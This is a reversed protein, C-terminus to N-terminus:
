HKVLKLPTTKGNLAVVLFYTGDAQDSLDLTREYRGKFGTVTEHYIRDGQANHVDVVLDGREAVNFQIRYFGDSPNPACRLDGLDPARDLGV